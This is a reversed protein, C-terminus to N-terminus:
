MYMTRRGPTPQLNGAAGLAELPPEQPGPVRVAGIFLGLQPGHNVVVPGDVAHQGGHHPLVGAHRLPLTQTHPHTRAHTGHGGM